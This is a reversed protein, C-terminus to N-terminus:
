KKLGRAGPLLTQREKLTKIKQDLFARRPYTDRISNLTEIAKAYNKQEEYCVALILGVSETKSKEPYTAILSKLVEIAEDHKKAALLINAKLLLADFLRNKDTSRSVIADIEVQSQFFNNLYFYSRAIAIRYDLDENESHPLELLRSYEAIAQTYDLTETFHLDALNKQATIREKQDQSHLIVHKYFDAAERPRKLQYHLLDAAAKASRLGLSSDPLKAAIAKYHTLASEYQGKQQAEEARQFELKDASVRCSTLGLAVVLCFFGIKWSSQSSRSSYETHSLIQHSSM